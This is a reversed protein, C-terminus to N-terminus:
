PTIKRRFGRRLIGRFARWREKIAARLSIRWIANAARRAVVLDGPTQGYLSFQCERLLSQIEEAANPIYGILIAATEAPTQAVSTKVGLWRLSRYVVAFSRETPNLGTLYAWRVLWDPPTLALNELSNKLVVPAPRRFTRRAAVILKDFAGFFYAAILVIGVLIIITLRLLADQSSVGSGPGGEGLPIRTENALNGQPTGVLTPTLGSGSLSADGAPRVLPSQSSTPEFEVWGNDPFYVEPWAHADRQRVTYQNPPEYEGQAFGVAMRAPIGASRLLVVEATAYYNCFGTKTDFLFWALVDRGAPPEGVTTAYTINTRLYETIAAAKDYPTESGATIQRALSGIEPPLDSPLELYHDSVWAPYNTGANRLQVVTPEYINAHVIYEAGALIPAVAVFMLPDIRGEASPTFTLRSNRSVWVPRPPTVLLALNESPSKFVFEGAMGEPDALSLPRQRPTFPEDFAYNTYWQDNQYLDYTRVRWYYRESGNVPPVSIRLYTGDGTQAERGLGLTDGYFAITHVQDGRLSEVARNLNQQKERWPRTLNEWMVRASTVPQGSAPVVWVLVVLALAAVVFIMNLDTISDASVWVRQEKWLQRKRIYTLRGLLLLCLFVYIALIYVRDGVRMDFLQIIVLVVGAPVVAGVFGGSRTLTYGATLSIIWIVISAFVIFLTSDRVPQSTFLQVFSTALQGGLSVMRDLWPIYKYFIWGTVMPLLVISYGLVLISVVLRKFNSLGLALGLVVGLLSFLSVIGLGSTWNTAYLRQSAVLLLLILIVASSYDRVRAPIRHM